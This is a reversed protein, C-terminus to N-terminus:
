FYDKLFPYAYVRYFSEFEVATLYDNNYYYFPLISTQFGEDILQAVVDQMITNRELLMAATNTKNFLIFEGTTGNLYCFRKFINNQSYASDYFMSQEAIRLYDYSSNNIIFYRTNISALFDIISSRDQQYVGRYVKNIALLYGTIVKEIPTNPIIDNGVFGYDSLAM